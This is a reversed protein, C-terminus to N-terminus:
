YYKVTADMLHHGAHGTLRHFYEKSKKGNVIAANVEEPNTTVMKAALLVSNSAKLVRYIITLKHDEHSLAIFLERQKTQGGQTTWGGLIEETFSFLNQKMGPIAKVRLTGSTEYRNKMHAGNATRMIGSILKKNFVHEESGMMHSPAGSDGIWLDEEEAIEMASELNMAMNASDLYNNVNANNTESEDDDTEETESTMEEESDFDQNERIKVEEPFEQNLKEEILEEIKTKMVYTFM